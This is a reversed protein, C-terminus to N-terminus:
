KLDAVKHLQIGLRVDTKDFYTETIWKGLKKCNVGGVPNMYVVCKCIYSKLVWRAYEFDEKNSIVFKLQDEKSLYRILDFRNKSQMGSSPCKIDMSIMAKYRLPISAWDLSGNTEITISYGGLMLEDCLLELSEIQILPEGGTICIEKCNPNEELLRKKIEWIFM